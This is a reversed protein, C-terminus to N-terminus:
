RNSENIIDRYYEMTFKQESADIKSKCNDCLNVPFYREDDLVFRTLPPTDRRSQSFLSGGQTYYTKSEENPCFDCKM